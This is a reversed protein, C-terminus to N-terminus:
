HQKQCMLHTKITYTSRKLPNYSSSSTGIFFGTLNGILATGVNKSVGLLSYLPPGLKASLSEELGSAM